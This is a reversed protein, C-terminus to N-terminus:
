ALDDWDAMGCEELDQILAHPTASLPQIQWQTSQWPAAARYANIM